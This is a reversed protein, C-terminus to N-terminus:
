VSYGRDKLIKKRAGIEQDLADLLFKHVVDDGLLSSLSRLAKTNATYLDQPQSHTAVSVETFFEEDTEENEKKEFSSLEKKIDHIRQLVNFTDTILKLDEETGVTSKTKKFM